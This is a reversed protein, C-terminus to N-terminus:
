PKKMAEEIAARLDALSYPKLLVAFNPNEPLDSPDGTMVIVPINPRRERVLRVLGLGTLKPMAIDTILLDVGNPNVRFLKLAAQGDLAKGAIEHHLTELFERLMGLVQDDDDVILIKVRHRWDM